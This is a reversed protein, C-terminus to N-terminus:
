PVTTFTLTWGDQTAAVPTAPADSSTFFELPLGIQLGTETTVAPEIRTDTACDGEGVGLTIAPAQTTGVITLYSGTLTVTTANLEDWAGDLTPQICGDRTDKVDSADGGAPNGVVYDGDELPWPLQFEIGDKVTATVFSTLLQGTQEYRGQVRIRQAGDTITVNAVILVKAAGQLVVRASVAVSDPTPKTGPATFTGTDLEGAVTGTTGSGGAVGNVSWDSTVVLLPALDDDPECDYGTWLPALEVDHDVEAQQFCRYAKLTVSGGTPVTASPPRLQVGAVMTWDSFHTAQVSLTRNATDLTVDGPVAWVGSTQQFAILLAEPSTGALDEDGYQFTLTVPQSFTAGEPALRLAQGRAGPATASIPTAGVTTATGFVCAPFDISLAGATFTGGEPGITMETASGTPTGRPAVAPTQASSCALWSACLLFGWSFRLM